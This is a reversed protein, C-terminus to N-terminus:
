SLTRYDAAIRKGVQTIQQVMKTVAQDIEIKVIQRKQWLSMLKETLNAETVENIELVWAELGLMEVVGRTKYQYQIMIPPTGATLAFINSHLRTGIFIDMLGYAAKLSDATVDEQEIFVVQSALDALMDHVRRAPVRDDEAPSPGRVQSFLIAQGNTKEVFTRIASSVATEYAKQRHFQHNQAQWNILTVGLRPAYPQTVATDLVQQGEGSTGGLFLFAVDPVLYCREHWGNVAQLLKMSIPDRVFVLRMRRVVWRLLWGEWAFRIPGITQPMSYLPKGLLIAYAMTGIGMLFAVGFRGGSFLFNGASSVVIDAEFYATLLARFRNPISWFTKRGLFRYLVASFFSMLFGILGLVTRGVSDQSKVWSTFSGIAREPGHFSDPDNMALTIQADPFNQRLLDISVRTLVDDGANLSSHLNVILIKM